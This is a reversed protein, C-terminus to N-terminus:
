HTLTLKNLESFSKTVSSCAYEGTEVWNWTEVASKDVHRKLWVRPVSAAKFAVGEVITTKAFSDGIENVAFSVRARVSLINFNYM